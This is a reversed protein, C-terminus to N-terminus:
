RLVWPSESRRGLSITGDFMENPKFDEQEPPNKTRDIDFEGNRVVDTLVGVHSDGFLVNARLKNHSKDLSIFSGIGHAPGFDTYSQIGFPGGYPGDSMSKVCREGWLTEKELTKGDALLPVTAPVAKIMATSRLPGVTTDRRKWNAPNPSRSAKLKDYETRAMYWSQTYNSNFGRKLLDRVKEEPYSGSVSPDVRLKQNYIAPNSPCLANAPDAFENRRLDAVWGVKDV